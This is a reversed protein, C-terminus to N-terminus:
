NQEEEYHAYASMETKRKVKEREDALEKTRMIELDGVVPEMPREWVELKWRKERM